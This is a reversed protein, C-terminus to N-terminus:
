LSRSLRDVGYIKTTTNPRRIKYYMNITNDDLEEIEDDDSEHLGEDLLRDLEARLRGFDIGDNEDEENEVQMM